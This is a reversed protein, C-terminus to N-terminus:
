HSHRFRRFGVKKPGYEALSDGIDRDIKAMHDTRFIDTVTPGTWTPDTDALSSGSLACKPGAGLGAHTPSFVRTGTLGVDAPGSDALGAGASEQGHLGPVTETPGIDAIRAPDCM